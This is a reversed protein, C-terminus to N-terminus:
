LERLMPLRPRNSYILSRKDLLDIATKYSNAFVFRHGLVQLYVLDGTHHYQFSNASGARHQYEGYTNRWRAAMLWSETKPFNFVNGLLPFGNPGPPLPLTSLSHRRYQILRQIWVAIVIIVVLVGLHM